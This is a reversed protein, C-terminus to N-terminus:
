TPLSFDVGNKVRIWSRYNVVNDVDGMYLTYQFIIKPQASFYNKKNITVKNKQYLNFLAM